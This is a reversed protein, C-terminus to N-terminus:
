AASPRRRNPAGVWSGPGVPSHLSSERCPRPAMAQMLGQFKGSAMKVPCTAAASAAPLVTTALGASAVGSTARSAVRASCSAPMGTSARCVSGMAPRSNPSAASACGRSAPTIKVPEVAVACHSLRRRAARSPAIRGSTASVPPMLAM